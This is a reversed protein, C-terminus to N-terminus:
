LACAITLRSAPHHRRAAILARCGIRHTDLEQLLAAVDTAPDRIDGIAHAASFICPAVAGTRTVYYMRAPRDRCGADLSCSRSVPFEHYRPKLHEHVFRNVTAVHEATLAFTRNWPEAGTGIPLWGNLVVRKAGLARYFPVVQPLEHVNQANVTFKCMTPVLAPLAAWTQMAKAFSGAGRVADHTEPTVGDMGIKVCDIHACLTAITREPLHVGSTVLLTYKGLTHAHACLTAIDPHITPEGGMFSISQVYPALRDMTRLVDSTPLHGRFPNNAEYCHRCRLPCAGTIWISALPLPLCGGDEWRKTTTQM